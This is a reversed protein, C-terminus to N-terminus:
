QSTVAQAAGIAFSLLGVNAFATARDWQEQSLAKLAEEYFWQPKM